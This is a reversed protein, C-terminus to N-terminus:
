TYLTAKKRHVHLQTSTVILADILALLKVKFNTLDIHFFINGDVILTFSLERCNVGLPDTKISYPKLSPGPQIEHMFRLLFFTKIKVSHTNRAAMVVFFLIYILHM